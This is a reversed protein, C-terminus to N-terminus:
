TKASVSGRSLPGPTQGGSDEFPAELPMDFTIM